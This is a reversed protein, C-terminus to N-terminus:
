DRGRNQTTKPRKLELKGAAPIDEPNNAGNQTNQSQRILLQPYRHIDKEEKEM